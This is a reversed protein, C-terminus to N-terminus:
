QFVRIGQRLYLLWTVTVNLRFPFYVRLCVYTSISVRTIGIRLFKIFYKDNNMHKYLNLLFGFLAILFPCDLSLFFCFCVFLCVFCLVVCCVFSFLHCVCLGGFCWPYGGLVTILEQRKYCM